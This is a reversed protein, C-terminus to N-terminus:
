ILTEDTSTQPTTEQSHFQTYRKFYALVTQHYLKILMDVGMATGERVAQYPGSLKLCSMPQNHVHHTNKVSVTLSSINRLININDGRRGILRGMMGHIDHFLITFETESNATIDEQSEELILLVARKIGQQYGTVSVLQKNVWEQELPTTHIITQTAKQINQFTVPSTTELFEGGLLLSLVSPIVFSSMDRSFQSFSAERVKVAMHPTTTMDLLFCVTSGVEIKDEFETLNVLITDGKDVLDLGNQSNKIENPQIYGQNTETNIEKLTGIIPQNPARTTVNSRQRSNGPKRRRGGRGRRRRPGGVPPEVHISKGAQSVVSGCVFGKEMRTVTFQVDMGSTVSPCDDETIIAERGVYLDTGATLVEGDVTFDEKLEIFGFGKRRDFFKVKGPVPGAGVAMAQSSGDYNIQAGGVATVNHAFQRGDTAVGLYFEVETNSKLEPWRDSSSIAKWHVFVKTTNNEDTNNNENINNVNNRNNNNNVLEIFGFGKRSVFSLVRGTRRVSTDINLEEKPQETPQNSEQVPWENVAQHLNPAAM